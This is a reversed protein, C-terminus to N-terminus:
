PLPSRPGARVRRGLASVRVGDVCPVFKREFRDAGSGFPRRSRGWSPRQCRTAGDIDVITLAVACLHQAHNGAALGSRNTAALGARTGGPPVSDLHQRDGWRCRELFVMRCCGAFVLILTSGNWRTCSVLRMSVRTRWCSTLFRSCRRPRSISRAQVGCQRPGSSDLCDVGQPPVEPNRCFAWTEGNELAIRRLKV